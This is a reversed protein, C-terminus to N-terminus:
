RVVLYTVDHAELAAACKETALLSTCRGMMGIRWRPSLAECWLGSIAVQGVVVHFVFEERGSVAESDKCALVGRVVILLLVL